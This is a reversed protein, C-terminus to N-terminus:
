AIRTFLFKFCLKLFDQFFSLIFLARGLGDITADSDDQTLSASSLCSAEKEIKIKPQNSTTMYRKRKVSNKQLSAIEKHLQHCSSQMRMKVKFSVAFALILIQILDEISIRYSEFKIEHLLQYQSNTYRVGLMMERLYKRELAEFCAKMWIILDSVVPSSNNSNLVKLCLGGLRRETFDEEPLRTRATPLIFCNVITMFVPISVAFAIMKKMNLICDKESTMSPEEDSKANDGIFKSDTGMMAAM